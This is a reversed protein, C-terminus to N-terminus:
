SFFLMIVLLLWLDKLNKTFTDNKNNNTKNEKTKINNKRERETM